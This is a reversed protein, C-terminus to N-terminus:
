PSRHAHNESAFRATSRRNQRRRIKPFRGNPRPADKMRLRRTGQVSRIGRSEAVQRYRSPIQRVVQRNVRNEIESQHCGQHEQKRPRRRVITGRRRNGDRRTEQETGRFRRLRSLVVSEQQSKHGSHRMEHKRRNERFESTRPVGKQTRERVRDQNGRFRAREGQRHNRFSNGEGAEFGKRCATYRRIHGRRYRHRRPLFGTDHRHISCRCRRIEWDHLFGSARSKRSVPNKRHNRRSEESRRNMQNSQFRRVRNMMGSPRRGIRVQGRGEHLRVRNRRLRPKKGAVGRGRGQNEGRNRRM